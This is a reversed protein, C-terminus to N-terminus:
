KCNAILFRNAIRLGITAGDIESEPTTIHCYCRVMKYDDIKSISRIMSNVTITTPGDHYDEPALHSQRDHPSINVIPDDPHDNPIGLDGTGYWVSLSLAHTTHTHSKDVTPSNVPGQRM